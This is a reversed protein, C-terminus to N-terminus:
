LSTLTAPLWTGAKTEMFFLHQKADAMWPICESSSRAGNGARHSAILWLWL